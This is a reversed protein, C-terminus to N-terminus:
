SRVNVVKEPIETWDVTSTDGPHEVIWLFKHETSEFNVAQHWEGWNKMFNGESASHSGAM